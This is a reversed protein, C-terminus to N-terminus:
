PVGGPFNVQATAGFEAIAARDYALAAEIEDTFIGVYTKRYQVIFKGPRHVAVGRYPSSFGPRITRARNMMNDHQTGLALNARQNDLPNHNLHDIIQGRQAGMIQRHMLIGAGREMRFAYGVSQVCWKWQSLWEFDQDDVLAVYGKTLPIERV